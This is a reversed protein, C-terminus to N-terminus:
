DGRAVAFGGAAVLILAALGIAVWTVWSPPATSAGAATGGPPAPDPSIASQVAAGVQQLARSVPDPASVVAPTGQLDALTHNSTLEVSPTVGGATSSTASSAGLAAVAVAAGPDAGIPAVDYVLPQPRLALGGRGAASSTGTTGGCPDGPNCM